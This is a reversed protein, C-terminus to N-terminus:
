LFNICSIFFHSFQVLNGLSVLIISVSESAYASCGRRAPPKAKAAKIFHVSYRLKLENEQEVSKVASILDSNITFIIHCLRTLRSFPIGCWCAVLKRGEM